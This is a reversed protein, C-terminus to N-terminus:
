KFSKLRKFIEYIEPNTDKKSKVRGPLDSCIDYYDCFGCRAESSAIFFGNAIIDMLIGLLERLRERDIDRIVIERGEGKATPFFYSSENVCPNDSFGEERLIQEAALAYLAPQLARGGNFQAGPEELDEFSALRGTKYDMIRFADPGVRDIRDIRGKLFFSKEDRLGIKTREFPKEFALPMENEPRKEEVKLFIDLSSFIDKRENEFVFDSPPPIKERNQDILRNAISLIIPWHKKSNVREKKQSLGTMFECLIDHFLTGREGPELWRLPDFEIKEPPKLELIYRLFYNYPCGALQELQTTHVQLNHNRRPDYREPNIKVLGEYCSIKDGERIKVAMQGSKLNRFWRAVISDTKVFKDEKVMRALWWDIEDFFKEKREPISGAQRSVGAEFWANMGSFDLDLRGENLRLIQLLVSSPFKQREEIIDYHPYSVTIRGAQSALLSALNYLNLRVRDSSTKLTPGLRRREEDLLIPDQLVRGPFASEDLGVVFVVPRSSLGGSNFSAFHIHGPQPSSAGVSFSAVMSKLKEVAKELAMIRRTRAALSDTLLFELMNLIAARAENEFNDQIRNSGALEPRCFKRIIKALGRCLDLFNVQKQEDVEPCSILLEEILPKIKDITEITEVLDDQNPSDSDNADNLRDSYKKRLADIRAIYRGKSWGIGAEELIRAALKPEIVADSEELKFVLDGTAIMHSLKNILFNQGVWDLLGFLTRGASTMALPLGEAISINLNARCALSYAVLPYRSGPPFIVEVQDFPVKEELCRRFVERCENSIGYAKFMQISSDAFQRPASSPDFMWALRDADTSPEFKTEDYLDAHQDIFARGPSSDVGSESRVEKVLPLRLARRVPELGHVPTKPVLVLNDGALSMVLKQELLSLTQGELCLYWIPAAPASRLPNNMIKAAALSLLGARDLAKERELAAEFEKLILNIEVGKERVVFSKAKVEQGSLGALRMEELAKTVSRLLSPSQTVSRFYNLKGAEELKFFLAEVLDILEIEGLIKQGNTMISDGAAEAALSAFTMFRFNVWAQGERVLAEGLQRGVSYGPLVMIKEELPFRSCFKSLFALSLNM